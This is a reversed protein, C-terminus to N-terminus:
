NITRPPNITGYNMVISYTNNANKRRNHSTFINTSTEMEALNNIAKSYPMSM